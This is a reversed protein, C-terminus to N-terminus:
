CFVAYSIQDHSSNLRTSKRDEGGTVAAQTNFAITNGAGATTGGVSNSAGDLLDIGYGRNGLASVGDAKTGIFNGQILNGRFTTLDSSRRTPFSHLDRHHATYYF